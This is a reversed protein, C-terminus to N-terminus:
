QGKVGYLAFQTASTWNSGTGTTLTISNIASTSMWLGSILRITGSGNYEFGMLNRTTKYKNTNSYDLIDVVGVGVTSALASAAPISGMLINTNSVGSVAAAATSGDGQLLHYELYNSGTDGNFQCVFADTTVGSRNDRGIYRLQLHTYTSPISSFTITSSSGTGTVTAISDYAGSPAFLHGSIQSAYIGLIPSV